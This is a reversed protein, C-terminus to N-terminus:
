PVEVLQGNAIHVQRECRRQVDPDNSIVILTTNRQRFVRDLVREKAAAELGLNDLGGDVVMLRPRALLARALVLRQA